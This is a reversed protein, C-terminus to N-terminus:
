LQDFHTQEESPEKPTEDEETEEEVFEKDTPKPANLDVNFLKLTDISRLNATEDRWTEITEPKYYLKFTGDKHFIVIYRETSNSGKVIIRNAYENPKTTEWIDMVIKTPMKWKTIKVAKFLFKGRPIYTALQQRDNKVYEYEYGSREKGVDLIALPEIEVWRNASKSFHRSDGGVLYISANNTTNLTGVSDIIIQNSYDEPRVGNWLVFSSGVKLTPSAKVLKFIFNHKPTYTGYGPGKFYEFQENTEKKMIDITMPIKGEVEDGLGIVDTISQQEAIDEYPSMFAEPYVSSLPFAVDFVRSLEEDTVEDDSEADDSLFVKISREGNPEDTVTVMSSYENNTPTWHTYSGEKVLRFLYRDNATYIHTKTVVNYSYEFFMTGKKLSVDLVVLNNEKDELLKPNRSIVQVPVSPRNFEQFPYLGRRTEREHPYDGIVGMINEFHVKIDYHGNRMLKATVLQPYKYVSLEWLLVNGEKIKHFYFSPYAMFYDIGNKIFYNYKHTSKKENIDLHIPNLREEHFRHSSHARNLRSRSRTEGSSFPVYDYHFQSLGATPTKFPGGDAFKKGYCLLLYLLLSTYITYLKM